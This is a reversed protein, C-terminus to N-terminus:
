HTEFWNPGVSVISSLFSKLFGHAKFDTEPITKPLYLEPKPNKGQAPVEM